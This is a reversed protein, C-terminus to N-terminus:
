IVTLLHKVFYITCRVGLTAGGFLGSIFRLIIVAEKTRSAGCAANFILFLLNWSQIVRMRGYIESLPSALLPGCAFGLLYISIVMQQVAPQAIHLESAIAPMPPAIISVTFLSM